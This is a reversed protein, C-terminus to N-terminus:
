GEWTDAPELCAIATIPSAAHLLLTCVAESCHKAYNFLWLKTVTPLVVYYFLRGRISVM